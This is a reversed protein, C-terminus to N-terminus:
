PVSCCLLSVSVVGVESENFHISKAEFNQCKLRPHSLAKLVILDFTQGGDDMKLYQHPLGLVAELPSYLPSMQCSAYVSCPIMLMAITAFFFHLFTLLNYFLSLPGLM